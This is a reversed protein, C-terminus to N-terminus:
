DGSWCSGCWIRSSVLMKWDGPRISVGTLIAGSASMNLVLRTVLICSIIQSLVLRLTRLTFLLCDTRNPRTSARFLSRSSRSWSSRTPRRSWRCSIIRSMARTRVCRSLRSHSFIVPARSGAYSKTTNGALVDHMTAANVHALDIIMGLRNMEDMLKTGLPSLGGWHPKAPRAAFMEGPDEPEVSVAAADAFANHCNWTLTFYRAGLSHYLRLLSANRGIMHLGEVGIPSILKGHRRFAAVAATSELTPPSFLDAHEAQLRRIVDVQALGKMVVPAYNENSFDYRDAPCDVWASWFFGGQKGKALRPLDLHAPMPGQEFKSKFETSYIRNGFNEQVQAALDDHGDLLPTRSLIRHVRQDLSLLAPPTYALLFRAPGGHELVTNGIGIALALIITLFSLTQWRPGIGSSAPMHKPSSSM